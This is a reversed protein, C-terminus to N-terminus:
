LLRKAFILRLQQGLKGYHPDRGFVCGPEDDATRQIAGDIGRV